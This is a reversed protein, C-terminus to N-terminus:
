AVDEYLSLSSMRRFAVVKSTSCLAFTITFSKVRQPFLSM